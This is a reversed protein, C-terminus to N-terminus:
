RGWAIASAAEVHAGHTLQIPAGAAAFQASLPQVFLDFSGNALAIYAIANGAPSWVPHANMGHVVLTAEAVASPTASIASPGSGQASAAAPENASSAVAAGPAPMIWIDDGQATRRIFAIHQADPSWAPQFDTESPPTVEVRRGTLVNLQIIQAYPLLTEPNYAWLSYILSTGTGPQWRPFDAGGTYANTPALQTRAGSALTLRWVSPDLVGTQIRARDTVYALMRGDPSWDPQMEWLNNNVVPSTNNSLARPAGGPYTMELLNASNKLQQDFALLTGNPSWAPDAASGISTIQHAANGSFVWINGGQSYAIKGPVVPAPAATPAAPAPNRSPAPNAPPATGSLGCAALALLAVLTTGLLRAHSQPASPPWTGPERPGRRGQGLGRWSRELPGMM